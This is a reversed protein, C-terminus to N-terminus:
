WEFSSIIQCAQTLVILIFTFALCLIVIETLNFNAFADSKPGDM